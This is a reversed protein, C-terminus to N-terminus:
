KSISKKNYINYDTKIIFLRFKKEAHFSKSVKLKQMNFM